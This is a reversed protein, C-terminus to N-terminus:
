CMRGRTKGRQAIGDGRSSASSVSGGSAFGEYAAKEKKKIPFGSAGSSVRVPKEEKEKEKKTLPFGSAGSSVRVPKEEKEKEKLPFGSAGSGTKTEPKDKKKEPGTESFTRTKPAYTDSDDEAAKGSFIGKGENAKTKMEEVDVKDETFRGYGGGEKLRKVKHKM